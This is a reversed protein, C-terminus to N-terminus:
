VAHRGGTEPYRIEGALVCGGDSTPAVSAVGLDYSPDGLATEWLLAFEATVKVVVIVSVSSDSDPSPHWTDGGALVHAGDATTCMTHMGGHVENLTREWVLNGARDMKRFYPGRTRQLPHGPVISVHHGAVVYGGDATEYLACVSRYPTGRLFEDWVLEGSANARVVYVCAPNTLGYFGPMPEINAAIVYGGDSALLLSETYEYDAIAVSSFPFSHSWTENGDEDTKLLCTDVSMNDANWGSGACIYGGDATEQVAAFGRCDGFTQSWEEEGNGDTKVLDVQGGAAFIYGGDATQQLAWTGDWYGTGCSTSWVEEGSADTKFLRADDYSSDDTITYSAVIYGGDETQRIAKAGDRADGGYVWANPPEVVNTPEVEEPLCGALLSLCMVIAVIAAASRCRNRLVRLM